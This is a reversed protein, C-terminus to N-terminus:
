RIRQRIGASTSANFNADGSFVATITHTGVSLTTTAYAAQGSSNLTAAAGVNVGDVRFQVTGSPIGAGPAVATVTATFVVTTGSFAPTGSTTV